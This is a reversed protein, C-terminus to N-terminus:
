PSQNRLHRPLDEEPDDDVGYGHSGRSGGGGGGGHHHASGPRSGEASFSCLNSWACAGRISYREGRERDRHHDDAKLIAREAESLAARDVQAVLDTILHLEERFRDFRARTATKSRTATAETTAWVAARVAAAMVLAAAAAM